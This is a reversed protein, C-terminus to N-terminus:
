GVMNNTSSNSLKGKVIYHEKWIERIANQVLEKGTDNIERYINIINREDITLANKNLEKIDEDLHNNEITTNIGLLFYDTSVNFHKAFRVIIDGSPTAGKKWNSFSGKSYGLQETLTSPSIGTKKCLKILQEYFM